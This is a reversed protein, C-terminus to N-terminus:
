LCIDGENNEKFVSNDFFEALTIGLGDCVKKITSVMPNKSRGYVINGISCQRIGCILSLKNITLKRESCFDQIRQASAEGMTKNKM